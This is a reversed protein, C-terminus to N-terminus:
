KVTPNHSQSSKFLQNLRKVVSCDRISERSIQEETNGLVALLCWKV